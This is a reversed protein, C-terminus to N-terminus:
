SSLEQRVEFGIKCQLQSMILEETGPTIYQPPNTIQTKHCIFRQPDNLALDM